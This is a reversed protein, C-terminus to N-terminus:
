NQILSYAVILVPLDRIICSNWLPFGCIEVKIMYVHATSDIIAYSVRTTISITVYEGWHGYLFLDLQYSSSVDFTM